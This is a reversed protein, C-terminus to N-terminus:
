FKMIQCGVGVGDCCDGVAFSIMSGSVFEAFLSGFERPIGQLV